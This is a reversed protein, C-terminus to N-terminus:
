PSYFPAAHMSSRKQKHGVECVVSLLCLLLLLGNNLIIQQGMQGCHSGGGYTCIELRIMGKSLRIDKLPMERDSSWLFCLKLASQIM